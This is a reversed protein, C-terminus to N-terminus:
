EKSENDAKMQNQIARKIFGNVSEGMSDAHQKIEEKTGKPIRLLLSDYAKKNYKENARHRSESIAM